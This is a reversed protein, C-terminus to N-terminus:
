FTLTTQVYFFNADMAGGNAPVSGVSEKIYDGVFFHGYGADVTWWPKIAYSAVLDLETGVFSSYNPHIGYGTSLDNRGSGSIPYLYDSTSWLWYLRYDASLTLKKTPKLSASLHPIHMNRECFLDMMGYIGHRTLYLNDFTGSKGDNPNGDGSGADYGLGLRPTAWVKTWTYGVSSFVVFAQQELRKKLTANYITGLQGASELYYDWGALKDPLSKFRFGFTCIDRATSPTGPVDYADGSVAQAGVDRLFVYCDTEQWPVLKRSSAYIGSVTDFSNDEDFHNQYAAVIRGVFADVWFNDNTFQLKAADFTRGLNSWPPSGIFRQDGYSLEQRGVKAIFPLQAGDGLSIYAQQLLGEDEDPRPLRRDLESQCNRVESYVTLWSFPTYGAHFAERMLLMDTNNVKGHAIFDTNPNVPQTLPKSGATLPATMTSAAGVANDCNAYRIRFEGGFDWGRMDDSQQRLWDNLLGASVPAPSAVANTVSGVSSSDAMAAPTTALAIALIM